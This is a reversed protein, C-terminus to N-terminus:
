ACLSTRYTVTDLKKKQLANRLLNKARCLRVKVNVTSINLCQATEEVNLGEVERMMFVLRYKDPLSEITAKLIMRIEKQITKFEPNDDDYSRYGFAVSGSNDTEFVERFVYRKKRNLYRIAENIAIRTLWTGFGSRGEFQSLKEYAKVHTYQLAERSAEQENLISYIVRYLQRNYRNLIVGYMQKDSDLICQVVDEDTLNDFKGSEKQVETAMDM